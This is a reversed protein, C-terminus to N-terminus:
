PRVSGFPRYRNLLGYLLASYVAIRLLQELTQVWGVQVPRWPIFQYGWQFSLGGQRPGAPMEVVSNWGSGLFLLMGIGLLPWFLPVGRRIALVCFGCAILPTLLYECFWTTLRALWFYWTPWPESLSLDMVSFIPVTYAFTIGLVAVVYLLVPGALFMSRTYRYAWTKLESKALAEAVIQDEDGLQELAQERAAEHEAGDASAAQVLDQLHNRLEVVTRRAFRPAVGGLLLRRQLRQWDLEHM